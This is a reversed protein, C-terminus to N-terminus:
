TNLYETAFLVIEKCQKINCQSIHAEYGFYNNLMEYAERRSMADDGKWITDFVQHAQMRWQRTERTAPIGLPDFGNMHCGVYVDCDKHYYCTHYEGHRRGYFEENNGWNLTENCVPCPINHPRNRNSM